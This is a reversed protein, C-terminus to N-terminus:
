LSPELYNKSGETQDGKEEMQAGQSVEACSLDSVYCDSSILSSQMVLWVLM